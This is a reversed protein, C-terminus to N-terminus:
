NYVSGDIKGIRRVHREDGLFDTGLWLLVADKAEEATVFKAGFSLVNADNHERSLVLVEKPGGYYVAARVGLVRNAAIAEGQGSLGVVVGFSDKNQAVKQACPLVYDPYDDHPDFTSSGCDEVDYNQEVLFQKLTEKLEFGAHDSAIFIKKMNKFHAHLYRRLLVQIPM